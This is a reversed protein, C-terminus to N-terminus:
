LLPRVGVSISLRWYLLAHIVMYFEKDHTSYQIRADNLKKIFYAVLHGEQTLIRGIDIRAVDCAM